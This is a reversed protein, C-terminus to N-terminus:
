GAVEPCDTVVATLLYEAVALDRDAVTAAGDDVQTLCTYTVVGLATVGDQDLTCATLETASRLMVHTGGPLAYRPGNLLREVEAYIRKVDERTAAIINLQEKDTYGKRAFTRLDLESSQVMAAYGVRTGSPDEVPYERPALGDFVPGALAVFAADAGLAAVIAQQVPWLGSM